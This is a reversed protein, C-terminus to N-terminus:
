SKHQSTIDSILFLQSALYNNCFLWFMERIKEPGELEIFLSDNKIFLGTKNQRTETAVNLRVFDFRM